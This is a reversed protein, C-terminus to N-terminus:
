HQFYSLLQFASSLFWGLGWRTDGRKGGAGLSAGFAQPFGTRRRGRERPSRKPSPVRLRAQPQTPPGSLQQCASHFRRAWAGRQADGRPPGGARPLWTRWGCGVPERAGGCGWRTLRHQTVREPLAAPASNRGRAVDPREPAPPDRRGRQAEPVGREGTNGVEM